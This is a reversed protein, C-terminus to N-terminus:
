ERRIQWWSDVRFRSTVFNRSNARAIETLKDKNHGMVHRRVTGPAQATTAWEPPPHVMNDRDIMAMPSAAGLGTSLGASRAAQISARSSAAQRALFMVGVATALSSM